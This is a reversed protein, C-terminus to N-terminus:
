GDGGASSAAVLGERMAVRLGLRRVREPHLAHLQHLLQREPDLEPWDGPESTLARDLETLLDQLLRRYAADHPMVGADAADVADLIQALAVRPDPVVCLATLQARYELLEAIGTATFGARAVLMAVGLLNNSVPFFRTRDCLHGEEHAATVAILDGLSLEGPADAREPARSALVALRVRDAEGLGAEVRARPPIAQDAAAQGPLPLGGVALAARLAGPNSAESFGAALARWRGLEERIVAVDVWFGEHLAAGGISAGRRAARGDVDAGECWAITGSWPVGLHEGERWEILLTRLVTGDPPSGVLKGFIGFRGLRALEEALGSVPADLSGRGLREDEASFRPGPHVLSGLWGFDIRPSGVLARAVQTRDQEGGLWRHARAVAPAMSALLAALQDDPEVVELEDADRSSPPVARLLPPLSPARDQDQALRRISAIAQMGALARARLAAAWEGDSRAAFGNAEEFWGAEILAEGFTERAADDDSASTALARATLVVDRLRESRPLGDEDLVQPPLAALWGEVARAPDGLLFRIPRLNLTDGDFGADALAEFYQALSLPSPAGSLLVENLLRRGTVDRREALALAVESRDLEDTPFRMRLGSVLRVVDDAAVLADAILDLSRQIGLRRIGVRSSGLETLALEVALDAREFPQLDDEGLRRELTELALGERGGAALFGALTTSFFTREFPDRACELARRELRAADRWHGDISACWALGHHAWASRRDREAARAFRTKGARAELRGALYLWRPDDREERLRVVYGALVEPARLDGRMRDDLFRRPAIWDPALEVAREAAAVAARRDDLGDADRWLRRAETFVQSADTPVPEVRPSSTLVCAQGGIALLLALAGRLELPSRTM